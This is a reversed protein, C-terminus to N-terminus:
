RDFQLFKEFRPYLVGDRNSHSPPTILVDSIVVGASVTLSANKVIRLAAKV